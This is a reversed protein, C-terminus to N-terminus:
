APAPAPAPAAPEACTGPRAPLDLHALLRGEQLEFSLRAGLAAAVTDVLALGLGVGGGGQGGNGGGSGGGSSSGASSSGAGSGSGAGGSRSRAVDGCWFPEALHALDERSLGAAANDVTLRVGGPAPAARCRVPRGPTGHQVANALLNGVAVDLLDRDTRVSLGPAVQLEFRQGRRRAADELHRWSASVAPALAVPEEAPRTQGSAMRSLRLLTDVLKGM